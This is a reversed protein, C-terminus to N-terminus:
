IGHPSHITANRSNWVGGSICFGAEAPKAYWGLNWGPHSKCLSERMFGCPLWVQWCQAQAPSGEQRGRIRKGQVVAARPQEM